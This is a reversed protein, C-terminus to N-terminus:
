LSSTLIQGITEGREKVSLEEFRENKSLFPFILISVLLVLAVMVIFVTIFIIVKTELSRDTLFVSSGAFFMIYLYLDKVITTFAFRVVKINLLNNKFYKYKNM